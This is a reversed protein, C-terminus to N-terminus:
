TLTYTWAALQPPIMTDTACRSCFILLRYPPDEVCCDGGLSPLLTMFALPVIITTPSAPTPFVDNVNLHLSTGEFMILFFNLYKNNM